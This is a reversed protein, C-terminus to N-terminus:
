KKAWVEKFEGNLTQLILEKGNTTIKYQEVKGVYAPNYSKAMTTTYVDGSDNKLTQVYTKETTGDTSKISRSMVNNAINMSGTWGVADPQNAKTRSLFSYNGDLTAAFVTSTVFLLAVTLLMGSMKKM